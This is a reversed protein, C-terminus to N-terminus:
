SDVHTTMSKYFDAGELGDIVTLMEQSTLGM